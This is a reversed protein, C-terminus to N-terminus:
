NARHQEIAKNLDSQTTYGHRIKGAANLDQIISIMTAEKLGYSDMVGFCARVSFAFTTAM